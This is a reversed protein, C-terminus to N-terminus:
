SKLVAFKRVYISLTLCGERVWYFPFLIFHVGNPEAKCLEKPPYFMKLTRFLRIETQLNFTWHVNGLVFYSMLLFLQVEKPIQRASDRRAIFCLYFVIPCMEAEARCLGEPPYFIKLTEFSCFVTQLDFTWYVNGIGFYFMTFVIPGGKPEARCLGEPPYFM